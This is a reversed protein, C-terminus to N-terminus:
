RATQKVFDGFEHIFLYTGTEKHLKGIYEGRYSSVTTHGKLVNEFKQQLKELANMKPPTSELDNHLSYDKSSSRAHSTSNTRRHHHKDKKDKEREKDRDRDEYLPMSPALFLREESRLDTKRDKDKEKDRDMLDLVELHINDVM